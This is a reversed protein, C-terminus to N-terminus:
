CRDSCVRVLILSTQGSQNTEDYQCLQAHIRADMLSSGIPETCLFLAFSFHLHSNVRLKLQLDRHIDTQRLNLLSARVLTM